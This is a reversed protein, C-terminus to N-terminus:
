WCISGTGTAYNRFVATVGELASPDGYSERQEMQVQDATAKVSSAGSLVGILVAATLLVLVIAWIKIKRDGM